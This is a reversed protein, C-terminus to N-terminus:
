LLPARTPTCSVMDPSSLFKKWIERQNPKGQSTQNQKQWLRSISSWALILESVLEEASCPIAAPYHLVINHGKWILPATKTEKKDTYVQVQHVREETFLHILSDLKNLRQEITNTKDSLDLGSWAHYYTDEGIQDKLNDYINTLVDAKIKKMSAKMSTLRQKRNSKHPNTLRLTHDNGNLVEHFMVNGNADLHLSEVFKDSKPTSMSRVISATDKALTYTQSVLHDDEDVKRQLKNHMVDHLDAVHKMTFINEAQFLKNREEVKLGSTFMTNYVPVVLQNFRVCAVVFHAMRTACWTMLHIGHGMELAAM